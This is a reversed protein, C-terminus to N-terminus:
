AEMERVIGKLDPNPERKLNKDSYIVINKGKFNLKVKKVKFGLETAYDVLSERWNVGPRKVIPEDIVCCPLLAFDKDYKACAKIIQMNCGHAHMGIILDFHKVHEAKFNESIRPVARRNKIRHRVKNLDKYKHPLEQWLPDIVTSQWGDQRLMYALLGKGGAVDAVKCPKFSRTLWEYLLLFRFKKPRRPKRRGSASTM